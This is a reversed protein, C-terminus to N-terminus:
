LLDLNDNLETKIKLYPSTVVMKLEWRRREYNPRIELENIILAPSFDNEFEGRIANDLLNYTEESMPKTLLAYISGGQAPRRIKEGRKSIIWTKLANNLADTGYVKKINGSRTFGGEMDLDFLTNDNLEEFYNISRM